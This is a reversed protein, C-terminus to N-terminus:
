STIDGQLQFSYERPNGTPVSNSGPLLRKWFYAIEDTDIFGDVQDAQTAYIWDHYDKWDGPFGSSDIAMQVYKYGDSIRITAVDLSSVVISDAFKVFLGVVIETETTGDCYIPIDSGGDIQCVQNSGPVYGSFRLELETTDGTWQTSCRTSIIPTGNVNVPRPKPIIYIKCNSLGGTHINHVAIRHETVEADDTSGATVTGDILDEGITITAVDGVVLDDADAFKIGIGPIIDTHWTTDDAALNGIYDDNFPSYLTQGIISISILKNITDVSGITITYIDPFDFNNAQDYASTIVDHGDPNEYTIRSDHSTTEADLFQFYANPM